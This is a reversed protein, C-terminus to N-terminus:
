SRITKNLPVAARKGDALRLKWAGHSLCFFFLLLYQNNLWFAAAVAVAVACSRMLNHLSLNTGYKRNSPDTQRARSERRGPNLHMDVLCLGILRHIVTTRELIHKEFASKNDPSRQSLRECPLAHHTDPLVM